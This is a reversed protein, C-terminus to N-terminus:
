ISVLALFELFLLLGNQSNIEMPITMGIPNKAGKGNEM